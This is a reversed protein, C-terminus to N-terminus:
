PTKLISTALHIQDKKEQMLQTSGHHIGEIVDGMCVVVLRHKRPSGGVLQWVYRWYDLWNDWLWRQMISHRLVQKKEEDQHYIEFEPPAIATNGGIHLDGIIATITKAM